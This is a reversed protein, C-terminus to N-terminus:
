LTGGTMLNECDQYSIYTENTCDDAKQNVMTTCGSTMIIDEEELSIRNVIAKEFKM